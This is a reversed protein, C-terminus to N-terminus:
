PLPLECTTLPRTDVILGTKGDQTNLNASLNRNELDIIGTKIANSTYLIM